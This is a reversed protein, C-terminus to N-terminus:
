KSDLMEKVAQGIELADNTQLTMGLAEGLPDSDLRKCLYIRGDELKEATIVQTKEKIYLETGVDLTVNPSTEIINTWGPQNNNIITAIKKYDKM